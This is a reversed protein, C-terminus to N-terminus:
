RKRVAYEEFTTPYVYLNLVRLQSPATGRVAGLFQAASIYGELEFLLEISSSEEGSFVLVRIFSSDRSVPLPLNGSVRTYVYRDEIWAPSRSAKFMESLTKGSDLVTGKMKYIAYVRRWTNEMKSNAILSWDVDTRPAQQQAAALALFLAISHM